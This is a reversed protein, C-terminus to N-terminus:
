APATTIGLRLPTGEIETEEVTAGEADGAEFRTALTEGAIREAHEEIAKAVEGDANWSVEIRAEYPLDMAKRARQIRNIVERAM